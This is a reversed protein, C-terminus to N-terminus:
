HHVINLQLCDPPTKVFNIGKDRDKLFHEICLFSYESSSNRPLSRYLSYSQRFITLPSLFIVKERSYCLNGPIFQM